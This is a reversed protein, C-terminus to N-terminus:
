SLRLSTAFINTESDLSAGNVSWDKINALWMVKNKRDKWTSHNICWFSFFYLSNEVPKLSGMSLSWHYITLKERWINDVYTKM